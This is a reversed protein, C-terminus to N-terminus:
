TVERPCLNVQKVTALVVKLCEVRQRRAFFRFVTHRHCARPVSKQVLATCSFDALVPLFATSGNPNASIEHYLNTWSYNGTARIARDSDVRLMQSDLFVKNVKSTQLYTPSM